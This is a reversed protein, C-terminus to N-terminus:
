VPAQCLAAAFRVRDSPDALAARLLPQLEEPVPQVEATMAQVGGRLAAEKSPNLEPSPRNVAGSACTAIAIVRVHCHMDTLDKKLGEVTVDQWRTMHKWAKRWEDVTYRWGSLEQLPRHPTRTYVPRTDPWSTDPPRLGTETYDAPSPLALWRRGGKVPRLVGTRKPTTERAGGAKNWQEPTRPLQEQLNKRYESTNEM